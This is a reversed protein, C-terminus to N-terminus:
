AEGLRLEDGIGLVGAEGGRVVLGDAARAAAEDEDQVRVRLNQGAGEVAHDVVQILMLVYGYGAHPQNIGVAGELVGAEAEGAEDLREQVQPWDVREQEVARDVSPIGPARVLVLHVDVEAQARAEHEPAGRAHLEILGVEHVHLLDVEGPAELLSPPLDAVQRLQLNQMVGRGASALTRRRHPLLEVLAPADEVPAIAPPEEVPRPLAENM